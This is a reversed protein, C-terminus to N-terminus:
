EDVEMEYFSATDAIKDRIDDDDPMNGYDVEDELEVFVEDILEEFSYPYKELCITDGDMERLMYEINDRLTIKMFQNMLFSMENATLDISGNERELTYVSMDETRTLKM